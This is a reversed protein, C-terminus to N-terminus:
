EVPAHLSVVLVFVYLVCVCLWLCVSIYMCLVKVPKPDGGIVKGDMTEIAYAASSAKDFKIYCIGKNEKTMRDKVMWVDEINGCSNFAQRMEDERHNKSCVIFIRSLPPYDHNIRGPTSSSSSSSQNHQYESIAMAVAQTAESSSSPNTTDM